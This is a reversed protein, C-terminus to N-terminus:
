FIKEKLMQNNIRTINNIYKHDDLKNDTNNIFKKSKYVGDNYTILAKKLDNHKVLEDNILKGWMCINNKINSLWLKTVDLLEDNSCQNENIFSYDTVGIKKFIERDNDTLKQLNELGTRNIIQTFGIAGGTSTLISNKSNFHKAGSEHLIQSILLNFIKEDDTFGYLRSVECFTIVTLTDVNKNYNKFAYYAKEFNDPLKQENFNVNELLERNKSNTIFSTSLIISIIILYKM